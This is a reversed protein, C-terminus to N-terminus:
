CRSLPLMTSKLLKLHKLKGCRLAFPDGTKQGPTGEEERNCTPCDGECGWGGNWQPGWGVFRHCLDLYAFRDGLTKPNHRNMPHDSKHHLFWGSIHHHDFKCPESLPTNNFLLLSLLLLLLLLLTKSYDLASNWAKQLAAIRKTLNRYM